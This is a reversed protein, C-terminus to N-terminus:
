AAHSLPLEPLVKQDRVERDAAKQKELDYLQAEQVRRVADWDSREDSLGARAMAVMRHRLNSRFGVVPIPGM